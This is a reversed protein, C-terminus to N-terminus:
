VCLVTFTGYTRQCTVGLVSGLCHAFLQESASAGFVVGRVFIVLFAFDLVCFWFRLGFVVTFSATFGFSCILLCLKFLRGDSFTVCPVCVCMRLLMAVLVVDSM